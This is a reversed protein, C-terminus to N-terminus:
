KNSIAAGIPESVSTSYNTPEGGAPYAWRDATSAATGTTICGGAFFKGFPSITAQDVDCGGGNYNTLPTSGTITGTSGSVSIADQCSGSSCEQDGVILGTSPRWNVGGPFTITGGSITVTSMTSSGNPLRSLSFGSTGLPAL